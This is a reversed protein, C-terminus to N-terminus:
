ELRIVPYRIYKAVEKRCMWRSNSLQSRKLLTTIKSDDALICIEEECGSFRMGRRHFRHDLTIQLRLRSAGKDWFIKVGDSPLPQPCEDLSKNRLAFCAKCLPCSIKSLDWRYPHRAPTFLDSSHTFGQPTVAQELGSTCLLSKCTTCLPDKATDDPTLCSWGHTEPPKAM